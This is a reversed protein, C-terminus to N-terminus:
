KEKQKTPAAPNLWDDVTDFLLQWLSRRGIVFRSQFSMGKKLRGTYGHRLYLQLSDFSCRVRFVPLNSLTIDNEIAIVRVKLMVFYNYDFANIQFFVPQSLKILGISSTPVYSEGIL